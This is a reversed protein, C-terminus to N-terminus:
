GLTLISGPGNTLNDINVNSNGDLALNDGAGLVINNTGGSVNELQDDSLEVPGSSDQSLKPDSMVTQYSSKWSVQNYAFTLDQGARKSTRLTKTKPIPNSIPHGHGM